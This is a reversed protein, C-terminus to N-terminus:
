TYGPTSCTAPVAPRKGSRDHHLSSEGAQIWTKGDLLETKDCRSCHGVVSDKIYICDEDDKIVEEVWDHGLATSGEVAELPITEDVIKCVACIREIGIMAPNDCDADVFQDVMQHGLESIYRVDGCATCQQKYVGKTECDGAKLVAVTEYDCEDTCKEAMASTAAFAFVVCLLLAFVLLKHSFKM